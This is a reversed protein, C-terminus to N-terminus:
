LTTTFLLAKVVLTLLDLWGTLGFTENLSSICWAPDEICFNREEM